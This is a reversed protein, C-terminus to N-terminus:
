DKFFFLYNFRSNLLCLLFSMSGSLYDIHIAINGSLSRYSTNLDWSKEHNLLIERASIQKQCLLVLLDLIM